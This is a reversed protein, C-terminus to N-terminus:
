CFHKRVEETKNKEVAQIFPIPEINGPIYLPHKPSGNKNLGLCYANNWMKMVQKAREEAEPFAGWAFITKECKDWAAQLYKDNEGVPDECKLLDEPHPSVLGFLNTMYVGGFGWGMAFKIVRRITPDNDVENATSPNLGIFQVSPKNLDWLRFLIYRYKRDESFIAGNDNFLEAM